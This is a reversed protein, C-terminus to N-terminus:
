LGSRRGAIRDWCKRLQPALWPKIMLSQVGGPRGILATGHRDSNPIHSAVWASQLDLQIAKILLGVQKSGFRSVAFNGGTFWLGPYGSARYCGRIEGEEDIGWVPSTQDIVGDGFLARMNDRINEYGTSFLAGLRKRRAHSCSPEFGTLM